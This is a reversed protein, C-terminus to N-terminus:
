VLPKGEKRSIFKIEVDCDLADAIAELESLKFVGRSFKNHISQPSQNMKKALGAMSLGAEILCHDIYKKIDM